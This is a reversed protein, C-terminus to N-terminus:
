DRPTKTEGPPVSRGCRRGCGSCGCGCGCKGNRRNRRMIGAALLIVAGVAAAVVIDAGNM